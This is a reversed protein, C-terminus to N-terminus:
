SPIGKLNDRARIWFVPITFFLAPPFWFSLGLLIVQPFHMENPFATYKALILCLLYIWGGIQVFAQIMIKDPYFGCLVLQLPLTLLGSCILAIKIKKLLFAKSDMSFISFYEIPEAKFYFSMCLALNFGISFLSLNFNGVQIGKFFLFLSLFFLLITKRFGSPFEWPMNRFPTPTTMRIGPALYVIAMIASVPFLLIAPIYFGKLALFIIFPFAIILNELLRIKRFDSRSFIQRLNNVRGFESFGTTLSIYILVYIWDALETKFFLYESLAIFILAILIIGLWPNIGFETLKRKIRRFELIFYFKM